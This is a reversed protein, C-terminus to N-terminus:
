SITIVIILKRIESSYINLHVKNILSKLLILMVNLVIILIEMEEKIVLLVLKM